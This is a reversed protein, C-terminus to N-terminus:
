IKLKFSKMLSRFNIFYNYVESYEQETHHNLCNESCYGWNKNISPFSFTDDGNALAALNELEKLDTM